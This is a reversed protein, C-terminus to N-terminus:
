LGFLRGTERVWREWWHEGRHWRFLAKERVRGGELTVALHEENWYWTQYSGVVKGQSTFKGSYNPVKDEEEWEPPKGGFIVLRSQRSGKPIRQSSRWRGSDDATEWIAYCVTAGQNPIGDPPPQLPVLSEVESQTAGIRVLNYATQGPSPPQLLVWASMVVIALAVLPGVAVLTRKRRTMGVDDRAPPRPDLTLM